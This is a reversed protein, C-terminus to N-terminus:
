HCRTPRTSIAPRSAPSSLAGSAMDVDQEENKPEVASSPAAQRDRQDKAFFNLTKQHPRSDPKGLFANLGGQDPAREDSPKKGKAMSDSGWCRASLASPTPLDLVVPALHPQRPCEWQWLEKTSRQESPRNWLSASYSQSANRSAARLQGAEKGRAGRSRSEIRACCEASTSRSCASLLRFSTRTPFTRTPAPLRDLPASALLKRIKRRPTTWSPRRAFSCASPASRPDRM